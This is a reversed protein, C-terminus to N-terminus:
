KRDPIKFFLFLGFILGCLAIFIRVAKLPVIFMSILMITYTSLLIRWKKNRPVARDKEYDGVYYDYLKTGRLWLNFRESSQTFAWASLLLFPTTPLVPIVAGIAGLGFSIFGITLLIIKKM